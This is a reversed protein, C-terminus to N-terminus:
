GLEPVAHPVLQVLPWCVLLVQSAVPSQLGPAGMGQPVLRPQLPLTHSVPQKTPLEVPQRLLL